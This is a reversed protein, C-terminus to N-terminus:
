GLYIWLYDVLFLLCEMVLLEGYDKNVGFIASKGLSIM